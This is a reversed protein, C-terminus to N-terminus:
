VLAGLAAVAAALADGLFLRPREPSLGRPGIGESNKAPFEEKSLLLASYCVCSFLM